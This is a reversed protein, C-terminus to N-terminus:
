ESRAGRDESRAGEEAEAKAHDGAKAFVGGFSDLLGAVGAREGRDVVEGAAGAEALRHHFPQGFGVGEAREVGVAACASQCASALFLFAAVIGSNSEVAARGGVLLAPSVSRAAQGGHWRVFLDNGVVAGGAERQPGM